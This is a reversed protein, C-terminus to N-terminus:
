RDAVLDQEFLAFLRPDQYVLVQGIARGAADAEFLQVTHPQRGAETVLSLLLGPQGNASIPQTAWRPGRWAFLHAMFAAYADRGISWQPVPPMEFV